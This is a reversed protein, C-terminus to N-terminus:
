VAPRLRRWTDVAYSLGTADFGAAIKEARADNYVEDMAAGVADCRQTTPVDSRGLMWASVGVLGFAGVAVTWRAKTAAPTVHLKDLLAEISPYRDDPEPSLGKLVVRRLWGPIRVGAPPERLKRRKKLRALKPVAVRPFPREGYLGEYLAVCFSYQDSKATALGGTHQEPAMYAPTGVVVGVTLPEDEEELEAALEPPLPHIEISTSSSRSDDHGGHVRALGFDLVRVVGDDGLIVNGPKFDRHVIGAAHAAALGRGAAVLIELVRKWRPRDKFWRTVSTGEVLEMAMFVRGDVTGVDYVHVLNPHSLRALAQAERLLRKPSAISGTPEDHLLKVAVKRHLESDYGLYVVGMGGRGLQDLLWYRGVRQGPKVSAADALTVDGLTTSVPREPDAGPRTPSHAGSSM